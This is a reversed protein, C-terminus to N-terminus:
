IHSTLEIAGTNEILQSRPVRCSKVGYMAQDARQLAAWISDPAQEFTAFGISATISFGASAMKEVIAASLSRCLLACDARPTKPMVIVFEDGGIRATSDCPRASKRLVDGLLKLAQDGAEHGRRDNLEKFRDLDLVALSLAGGHCRQRAIEVSLASEFGRRNHLQTLADTIALAESRVISMRAARAFAVIVAASTLAVVINFLIDLAPIEYAVLTMLQLALSIGVISAVLLARGCYYATAAIPFVYLVHLWIKSGDALDLAFISVMLLICGFFAARPTIVNAGTV